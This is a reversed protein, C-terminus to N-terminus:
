GFTQPCIKRHGGLAMGFCVPPLINFSVFTFAPGYLNISKEAHVAIMLRSGKGFADSEVPCCGCRWKNVFRLRVFVSCGRRNQTSLVYIKINPEYFAKQYVSPFSVAGQLNQNLPGTIVFRGAFRM